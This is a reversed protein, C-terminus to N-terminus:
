QFSVVVDQQLSARFLSLGEASLQTLHENDNELVVGSVVKALISPNGSTCSRLHDM